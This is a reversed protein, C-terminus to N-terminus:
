PEHRAAVRPEPHADAVRARGAHVARERRSVVAGERRAVVAREHGALDCHVEVDGLGAAEALAVVDHAQHPAIELVIAGGPKLWSPADSLIRQHAETGAPGAELACRPEWDRVVPDLTAMEDSSIYPPNAIAVSLEGALWSPLAQWWEGQLLRIRRAFRDALCRRNDEALDLADSSRDIGWVTLDLPQPAEDGLTLSTGEAWGAWLLAESVISLAIAGSGTGLDVVHLTTEHVAAESERNAGTEETEDTKDAGEANRCAGDGLAAVRRLERLAIEVVQETEPRPILARRDVRLEVGRFQWRGLVYQLPEGSIRRGVLDGVIRIQSETPPDSERGGVLATRGEAPVDRVSDVLWAAERRSGLSAEAFARLSGWTSAPRAGGPVLVGPNM